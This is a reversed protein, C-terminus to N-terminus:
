DFSNLVSVENQRYGTGLPCQDTEKRSGTGGSVNPWNKEQICQAEAASFAGIGIIDTRWLVCSGAWSQQYVDYVAVTFNCEFVLPFSDSLDLVAAVLLVFWVLFRRIVRNFVLGSRWHRLLENWYKSM